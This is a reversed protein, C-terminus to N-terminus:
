PMRWDLLEELKDPSLHEQDEPPVPSIDAASYADIRPWEDIKSLLGPPLLELLCTNFLYLRALIDVFEMRETSEVESYTEPSALDARIGQLVM